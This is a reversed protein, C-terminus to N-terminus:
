GVIVIRAKRWGPPTDPIQEPMLALTMYAKTDTSGMTATSIGTAGATAKVASVMGIGGGAGASTWNDMQETISTYNTNTLTGLNTTSAADRGTAICELILCDGFVTNSVGPWEASTNAVAEVAVAVASWPDGTLPCGRVAIYRGINHDGSDGWSHATIVGDYRAWIVTLQTNTGQVVPSGTVHVFTNSAASPYNQGGVSEGLGVIIDNAVISAPFAPTIAGTGSAVTGVNVVTPATV